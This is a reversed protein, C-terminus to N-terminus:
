LTVKFVNFPMTKISGFVKIKILILEFILSEIIRVRLIVVISHLLVLFPLFMFTCQQTTSYSM